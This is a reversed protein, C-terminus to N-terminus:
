VHILDREIEERLIRNNNNCPALDVERRLAATLEHKIEELRVFADFGGHKQFFPEVVQYLLDIDSDPTDDGRAVSGFVGVLVFGESLYRSKLAELRQRLLPDLTKM